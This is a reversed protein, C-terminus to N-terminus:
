KRLGDIWDLAKVIYEQWFVWNHVGPSTHYEHDYGISTLYEDLSNNQAIGFDETGCAIYLAPREGGNEMLKKALHKPDIDSGVAKNLDGFIHQYYSLPAIPNGGSKLMDALGEIILASSLCVAASYVDPHALATHLAGYGGMSLGGIYLDERKTSIPFTNRMFEPLEKALFTEYFNNCVPDDLYFANYDEPMVVAIGHQVALDAINTSYLWDTDAGSYGHLLVLLRLDTAPKPEPAGPFRRLETPVVATIHTPRGFCSSHMTFHFVAM